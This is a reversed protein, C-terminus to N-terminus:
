KVINQDTCNKEIIEKLYLSDKQSMVIHIGNDDKLHAVGDVFGINYARHPSNEYGYYNYNVRYQKPCNCQEDKVFNNYLVDYNILFESMENAFKYQKDGTKIFVPAKGDPYDYINEKVCNRELIGKLEKILANTLYESKENSYVYPKDCDLALKISTEIIGCDIGDTMASNTLEIGMTLELLRDADANKFSYWVFNNGDRKILTVNNEKGEVSRYNEKVAIKDLLDSLRDAEQPAPIYANPGYEISEVADNPDFKIGFVFERNDSNVYIYHEAICMCREGTYEFGSVLEILAKANEGEARYFFKFEPSANDIPTSVTVVPNKSNAINTLIKKDDETLSNPANGLLKQNDMDDTMYPTDESKPVDVPTDSIIKSKCSTFSLTLIVILLYSILKKM